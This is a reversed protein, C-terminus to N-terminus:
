KVKRNEDQKRKMERMERDREANNMKLMKRKLELIIRNKDEEMQWHNDAFARVQELEEKRIAKDKLIEKNWEESLNNHADILKKNAHKQTKIENMNAYNMNTICNHVNVMKGREKEKEESKTGMEEVHKFLGGCLGEEPHSENWECTIEKVDDLSMGELDFM